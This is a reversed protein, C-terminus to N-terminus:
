PVDFITSGIQIVVFVLDREELTVRSVVKVRGFNMTITGFFEKRQHLIHLNYAYMKVVDSEAYYDEFISCIAYYSVIHQLTAMAPRVLKEYVGRGDKFMEINSKALALHELFESEYHAGSLEEGLQVARAAYQLIQVTEVGSIESFFWGCSTYMLMLYRQMELLKLCATVETKGLERQAHKYFLLSNNKM